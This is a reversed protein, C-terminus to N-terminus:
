DFPRGFYTLAWLAVLYVSVLAQVGAVTRVWGTARLAYERSQLRQIWDGVNLERWGINFASLLSFYLAIRLPRLGARSGGPRRGTRLRIPRPTRSGHVVEGVRVAWIGARGGPRLAFLYAVAFVPILVCLVRLPRGPSMGYQCTVEYMVYQFVSEMKGALSADWARRREARKIAFTVEREQARLGKRKFEERLEVLSLPTNQFTMRSLNRALAITHLLPLSGAGPEFLSSALDAGTLDAERLDAERLDAGRLNAERLSAERFEVGLLKAGELNAGALYAGNLYARNLNADTLRAGTLLAGTLRAGALRAGALDSRFLRVGSLNAETLVAGALNAGTLNAGALNAETLNAGPLHAGNLNAGCLNARRPDAERGAARVWEAHDSVIRALEEAEPRGGGRYRGDCQAAPGEAAAAWAAFIALGVIGGCAAGFRSVKPTM